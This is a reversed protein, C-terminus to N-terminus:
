SGSNRVAREVGPAGQTYRGFVREWTTKEKRILVTAIKATVISQKTARDLCRWSLPFLKLAHNLVGAPIEGVTSDYARAITVLTLM